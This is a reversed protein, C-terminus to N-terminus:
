KSLAFDNYFVQLLFLNGSILMVSVNYIYKKNYDLPLMYQLHSSYVSFPWTIRCSPTYAPQGPPGPVTCVSRHVCDIHNSDFVVSM